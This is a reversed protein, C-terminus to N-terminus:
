SSPTSSRQCSKETDMRSGIDRELPPSIQLGGGRRHRVRDPTRSLQGMGLHPRNDWRNTRIAKDLDDILSPPFYDVVWIGPISVHEDNPLNLLEDGMRGEEAIMREVENLQVLYNSMYYFRRRWSAPLVNGLWLYQFFRLLNYVPDYWRRGYGVSKFAEQGEDEIQEISPTDTDPKPADSSSPPMRNDAFGEPIDSDSM